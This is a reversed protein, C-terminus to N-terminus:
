ADEFLPAFISGLTVPFFANNQKSTALIDDGTLDVFLVNIQLYDGLPNVVTDTTDPLYYIKSIQYTYTGSTELVLFYYIYLNISKAFKCQNNAASYEFLSAM